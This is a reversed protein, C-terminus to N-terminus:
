KLQEEIMAPTVAALPAGSPAAPLYQDEIDSQVLKGNHFVRVEGIGGGASAVRFRVTAKRADSDAPTTLSTVQPPPHLLAEAASIPVLPRIDEGQIKRQVIDPRYFVDYFQNAPYLTNGLRFNVHNPGGRSGNFYGEPTIVIWEGGVFKLFRVLEEGTRVSWLRARGDDSGSLILKDDASFEISAITWGKHGVFTRDEKGSVVEWRTLTSDLYSALLYRGDHSFIVKDPEGQRSLVKVLRG